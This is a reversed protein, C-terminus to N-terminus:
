SEGDNVLKGGAKAVQSLLDMLPDSLGHTLDGEIAQVPKGDLTDRIFEASRMDGAIAQDVITKAIQRMGAKDDARERDKIEILLADTM